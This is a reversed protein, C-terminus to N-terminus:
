EKIRQKRRPFGPTKEYNELASLDVGKGTLAKEVISFDAIKAYHHADSDAILKVGSKLIQELEDQSNMHKANLEIYTGYDACAKAVEYCDVKFLHNIHALIDIPYRKVANILAKTNREIVSRGPKALFSLFASVYIKRWDFFSKAKAFSHYGVVLVEMDGLEDAELDITGDLGIIDAEIGHYIKIDKGEAYNQIEARQNKFSQRSLAGYSPNNFGHDTFALEKLGKAVAADINQKVTSVGDSYRTHTHYDGFYKTKEKQEM